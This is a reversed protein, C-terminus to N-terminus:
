IFHELGVSNFDGFIMHKISLDLPINFIPVFDGFVGLLDVDHCM